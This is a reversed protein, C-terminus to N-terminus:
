LREFERIEEPTLVSILPMNRAGATGVGLNNKDVIVPWIGPSEVIIAIEEEPREDWTWPRDPEAMHLAQRIADITQQPITHHLTPLPDVLDNILHATLDNLLQHGEGPPIRGSIVGNEINHISASLWRSGNNWLHQCISWTISATSSNTTSAEDSSLSSPKKITALETNCHVSNLLMNRSQTPGKSSKRLRKNHQSKKTLMESSNESSNSSNEITPPLLIPVPNLTSM